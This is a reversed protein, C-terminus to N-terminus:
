GAIDASFMQDCILGFFFGQLLRGEQGSAKMAQNDHYILSNHCIIIQAVLSNM